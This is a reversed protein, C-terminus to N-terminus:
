ELGGLPDDLGLPDMPDVEPADERVTEETICGEMTEIFEERSVTPRVVLADDRLDLLVEEDAPDIGVADLLEEPIRLRGDEDIHGRTAPTAMHSPTTGSDAIFTRRGSRGPPPGDRSRVPAPGGGTLLHLLPLQHLRRLLGGGSTPTSPRGDSRRLPCTRGGASNRCRCPEVDGVENEVRAHTVHGAEPEGGVVATGLGSVGLASAAGLREIRNRRRM